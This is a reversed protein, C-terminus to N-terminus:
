VFFVLTKKMEWLKRRYNRNMREEKRGGIRNSEFCHRRVSIMDNILKIAIQAMNSELKEFNRRKNQVDIHFIHALDNLKSAMETTHKKMKNGFYTYSRRYFNFSSFLRKQRKCKIFTLRNSITNSFNEFWKM